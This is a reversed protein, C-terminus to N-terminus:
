RLLNGKGLLAKFLLDGDGGDKRLVLHNVHNSHGLTLSVSTDGGTPSGLLKRALGMATEAFDSTNSGPMWRTHLVRHGTSTLVTVMVTDLDVLLDVADSSRAVGVSGGGLKVKGCLGDGGHTAERVVTDDVLVPDHDLAAARTDALTGDGESLGEQDVGLARGQLVDLQLKDVGGGLKSV